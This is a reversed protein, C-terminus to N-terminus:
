TAFHQKPHKKNLKETLNIVSIIKYFTYLPGTFLNLQHGTTVTFTNNQKLSTIHTRTAESINFSEYQRELVNVLTQRFSSRYNKQKELLQPKFQELHPFRNYFSSLEQHEDLCDLMLKSFRHTQSYDLCEPM